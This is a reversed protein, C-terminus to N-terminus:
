GNLITKLFQASKVKDELYQIGVIYFKKSPFNPSVTAGNGMNVYVPLVGCDTGDLILHKM